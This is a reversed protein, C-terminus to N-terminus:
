RKKKKTRKEPLFHCGHKLLEQIQRVWDGGHEGTRGEVGANAIHELAFLNLRTGLSSSFFLCLGRILKLHLDRLTAHSSITTMNTVHTCSRRIGYKLIVVSMVEEAMLTCVSPLHLTM